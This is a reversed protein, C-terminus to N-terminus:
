RNDEEEIFILLKNIANRRHSVSDKEESSLEAFTKGEYEFIMDYTFGNNGKIENSIKGEVKGEFINIKGKEDIYCIACIFRATRDNENADKMMELIKECKERAPTDEGYFGIHIYGQCEM